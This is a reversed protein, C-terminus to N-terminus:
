KKEPFSNSSTFYNLDKGRCFCFIFLFPSVTKEM